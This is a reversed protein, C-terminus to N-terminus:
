VSPQSYITAAQFGSLLLVQLLSTIVAITCPECRSAKFYLQPKSNHKVWMNRLYGVWGSCRHKAKKASFM